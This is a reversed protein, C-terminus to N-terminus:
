RGEEGAEGAGSAQHHGVPGARGHRGDEARLHCTGQHDTIDRFGADPIYVVPAHQVLDPNLRELEALSCRFLEALDHLCQANYALNPLAMKDHTIERLPFQEGFQYRSAFRASYPESTLKDLLVAVDELPQDWWETKLAQVRATSRLCFVAGQINQASSESMFLLQDIREPKGCILASEALV